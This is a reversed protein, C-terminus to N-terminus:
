DRSKGNRGPEVRRRALFELLDRKAYMIKRCPGRSFGIEGRLRLDRLQWTNLSLLQAAEAEGYALKHDLKARDVELRALVEVVVAQVVPRLLDPDVQIVTNM